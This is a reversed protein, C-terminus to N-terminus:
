PIYIRIGFTVVAADLKVRDDKGDTEVDDRHYLYKGEIGLTMNDAIFYEIGGGLMAARAWSRASFRPVAASDGLPTRDNTEIFAAGAGGLLYPVLRDKVLPFRVRVQPILTWVAM